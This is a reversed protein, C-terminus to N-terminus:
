DREAGILNFRNRTMKRTEELYNSSLPLLGTAPMIKGCKAPNIDVLRRHLLRAILSIRPFVAQQLRSRCGRLELDCEVITVVRGLHGRSM